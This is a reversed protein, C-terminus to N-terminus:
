IQACSRYKHKSFQLAIAFDSKGQTSVHPKKPLRWHADTRYVCTGFNHVSRSRPRRYMKIHPVRLLNARFFLKMASPTIYM